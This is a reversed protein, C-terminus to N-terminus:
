RETRSLKLKMKVCAFHKDHMCENWPYCFFLCVFLGCACSKWTNKIDTALCNRKKVKLIILGGFFFIFRYPLIFLLCILIATLVYNRWSSLNDQYRNKESRLGLWKSKRLRWVASVFMNQLQQIYSNRPSLYVEDTM